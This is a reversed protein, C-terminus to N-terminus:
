FLYSARRAGDEDEIDWFHLASGDNVMVSQGQRQLSEKLLRIKPCISIAVRELDTRRSRQVDICFFSHTKLNFIM